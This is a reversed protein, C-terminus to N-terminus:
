RIPTRSLILSGFQDVTAQCAPPILTTTDYQEVVAPGTLVAGAGLHTRAYVPCTLFGRSEFFFVPRTDLPQVPGTQEAITPLAPKPQTVTATIRLTSLNVEKRGQFSFGCLQEHKHHFQTVARQLIDSSLGGQPLDITLHTSMDVYHFDVSRRFQRPADPLHQQDLAAQAQHELETFFHTLRQADLVSADPPAPAARDERIDACFLGFSAAFGPQSPVVVTSIGLLAALDAAHLPGAGGVAM